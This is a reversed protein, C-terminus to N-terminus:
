IFSCSTCSRHQRCKKVIDPNLRGPNTIIKGDKMLYDRNKPVKDDYEEGFSVSVESLRQNAIIVADAARCIFIERLAGIVKDQTNTFYPYGKHTHDACALVNKRKIDTYKEIRDLIEDYERKQLSCMDVSLIATKIGNAEFVAAKAYLNDLVTEALRVNPYGAMNLFLPPTIDAEYFGAKFM